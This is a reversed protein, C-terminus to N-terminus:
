RSLLVVAHIAEGYSLGFVTTIAGAWSDVRGLEFAFSSSAGDVASRWFIAGFVRNQLLHQLFTM